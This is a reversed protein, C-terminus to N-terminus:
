KSLLNIIEKLNLKTQNGKSLDKITYINNKFEEEGIIIAFKSNNSSANQLSKKLNYKYDLTIKIKNKRLENILFLAYSKYKSDLIAM